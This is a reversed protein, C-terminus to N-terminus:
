SWDGLYRVEEHLEIDFKEKVTKKMLEILKKVDSATANGTNIIFNGHQDSIKAGGILTGKLGAKDILEGAHAGEPNRFTSGVSPGAPHHTKRIMIDRVKEDIEAKTMKPLQLKASLIVEGSEQFSSTRYTFNAADSPLKKIEGEKNIVTISVVLDGFFEKKGTDGANM